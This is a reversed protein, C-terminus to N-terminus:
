VAAERMEDYSGAEMGYEHKERGAVANMGVMPVPQGDVSWYDRGKSTRLVKPARDKFRAPMRGDYMDRPEIVHDDVSVLIMDDMQM